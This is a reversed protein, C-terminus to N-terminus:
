EPGPMEAEPSPQKLAEEEDWEAPITAAFENFRKPDYEGGSAAYSARTLSGSTEDV